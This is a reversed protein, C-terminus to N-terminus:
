EADSQDRGSKFIRYTCQSVQIIWSLRGIKSNYYSILLLFKVLLRLKGKGHLIVNVSELSQSHSM